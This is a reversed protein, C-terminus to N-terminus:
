AEFDGYLNNGDIMYDLGFDDEFGNISIFGIKDIDLDNISKIQHTEKNVM